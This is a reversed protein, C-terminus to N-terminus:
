VLAPASCQQRYETRPVEYHRPMPPLHELSGFEVNMHLMPVLQVAQQNPHCVLPRAPSVRYDLDLPALCKLGPEAPLLLPSCSCSSSTSQTNGHSSSHCGWTSMSNPAHEGGFSSCWWWMAYGRSGRCRRKIWRGSQPDAACLLYM